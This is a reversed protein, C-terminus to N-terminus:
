RQFVRQKLTKAEEIEKMRIKAYKGDNVVKLIEKQISKLIQKSLIIRQAMEKNDPDCGLAQADLYNNVAEFIGLSTLRNILYEADNAKIERAQLDSM